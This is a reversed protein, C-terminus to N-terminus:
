AATAENSYTLGCLTPSKIQVHRGMRTWVWRSEIERLYGTARVVEGQEWGLLLWVKHTERDTTYPYVPMWPRMVTGSPRGLRTGMWAWKQHISCEEEAKTNPLSNGEWEVLGSREELNSGEPSAGMHGRSRPGACSCGEKAMTTGTCGMSQLRWLLSWATKEQSQIGLGRCLTPVHCPCAKGLSFEM